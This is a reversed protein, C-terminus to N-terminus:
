KENNIGEVIKIEDETLGYLRYVMQDIQDGYKKIKAQKTSNQFYDDDETIAFIKGVFGKFFCIGIICNVTIKELVM